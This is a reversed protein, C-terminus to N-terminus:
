RVILVSPLRQMVDSHEKGSDGIPPFYWTGKMLTTDGCDKKREILPLPHHLMELGLLHNEPFFSLYPFIAVIIYLSRQNIEFPIRHYILM